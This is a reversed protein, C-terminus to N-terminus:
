KKYVFKELLRCIEQVDIPKAVHANMGCDLCRKIDESFADATMAIIPIDADPRDLKRIGWAAEYGTMIPMRIDMLVAQYYGVPSNQFMDICIQGNEARELEMGMESLLEEAIEWNLDNDEALLIKMGSFSIEEKQDERTEELSDAFPKLGHYLTSKFLPKAIFGTVGAERAREEIESWEYASILLIPVQDGMCRRIQRAAEIGDIGPLKWDLLIIHYDQHKEHNEKVREVASEGDLVWEADIGISSLASVTTECLQKDDDVVLMNWKPLIMDSEQIEAKEMDLTIHFESGKGLESEVEITGGMTDVIYKTIAMGLGTGETKRVRASDERTFSEFIKEQFEPTMGIGNDKVRLHIRM